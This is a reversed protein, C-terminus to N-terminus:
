RAATVLSTGRQPSVRVGSVTSPTTLIESPHGHERDLQLWGAPQLRQGALAAQERANLYQTTSIPKNDPGVFIVQKGNKEYPPMEVTWGLGYTLTFRPTMRWTDSGYFNGYPISM